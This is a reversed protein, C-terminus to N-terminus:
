LELEHVARDIIIQANDVAERAQKESIIEFPAGEPFADPYRSSIYYIDLQKGAELVDSNVNIKRAIMVISHGRVEYERYYAIAKTAKEAAQQSLFCVQSYYGTELGQRAWSIDNVAQKLWDHARQKQSM